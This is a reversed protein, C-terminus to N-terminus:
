PTPITAVVENSYISETGETDVATTLYYYTQGATVLTDTYSTTVDSASNIKTYPGGASTGRYINYGAVSSTSADWGLAVQHQVPAVGTGILSGVASANSANSAFTASASAAGSAQPTFTVTFSASQGAPITLPFSIGSLAFESTSSSGSSITVSAGIASLSGTLSKGAGVTVSGFSLSAPSVSLQGAATGTGSLSIALTANSANSIVSIGGTVAGTTQPAFVATFTLSQGANLTLPLDLGPVSFGTGSVNTQTITVSSGGTNTITESAGGSNSVQVSGFSLSSQSASLAGATVGTGSLGINLTSNSANSTIAVGGSVTGSTQPAFTVNFSTSQGANLTLPLTIGSVGFGAGTAAAQTITVSSGGSNTLTESATQNKGTQTSGFSVTSPSSTLAGATVGTGSLGVALSPNSANSAITVGGTVSGNTQPAFAVSFSTSQGAALTLPLTIGSMSFGSGTAAAQTITVSSGGSNTLTQSASQSKGTQVSGFSVSSPNATLSGASVGTGSLGVALSANSANSTITVGGTVAGSTQPAFAVSFSTSQGAALTLPLTIGSMSFGSGTAAAQAITVSSGGSNTLTESASQNQGTQISGFSVSSPNATLSGASVGTGSLGVALSANSANSTITVGGTVAGSTQPAFAVSFSTSQGAALTLPLTIGSMSFGAGTAAAQTITVSSGGSNTLTESATQNQGTQISGFSVTSPSAILAGATVGIGSLGVALSANSANSTITVGGTVAGGTQPAFAVSFNTSQGAALTLPLTIGSMSFGAGTAAAQTITVSSGGSNTLTESATQNQGTQISGFSVTSPSATLAGATVGTGSLGVALSGNSANSTITVGGTVAGSTQPAFAVSFNTSQGAALTLPLTIGSMSFGAGTAAAQTITVSSGGSNTLTQSAAQSKGTQVSGFSVSSPNATLSGSSVGTGSLAVALSANSANSTITLGGTVAGSTQPAFAVSFSTSQGPALTLPMTLGSASFGAGTYSAQTITLSSGGSNTLTQSATQSNGTQVSGFSVSSPSATLSGAAVGMGTVATNVTPSSANSSIAVNGSANAASQPSFVVTFSTSQGAPLTLPLSLGTVSFGPGTPTVQSVTVSSGGTNTLTDALGQSKGIPTSSFSISPTATLQGTTAAMGSLPITLTQAAGRSRAAFEANATPTTAARHYEGRRDRSWGAAQTAMVINGTAAGSTAPAFTVNFTTSQSPQLTIPLHLGSLRFDSESPTAQSITLNTGGANTFTEMQTLSKGVMVTGFSISAPSASLVGPAVSIGSLNLTIPPTPGSSTLVVTGTPQGSSAPSFTVGLTAHQGPALTLPFTPSSIAFGAGTVTARSVTISANSSNMLADTVVTYDGLVVTGFDMTTKGTELGSTPSTHPSADLIMCGFLPAVAVFLLLAKCRSRLDTV